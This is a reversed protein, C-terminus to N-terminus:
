EIDKFELKDNDPNIEIRKIGLKDILSKPLKAKCDELAENFNDLSIKRFEIRNKNPPEWTITDYHIKIYYGKYLDYKRVTEVVEKVEEPTYNTKNEM